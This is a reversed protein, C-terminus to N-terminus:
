WMVLLSLTTASIRNRVGFQQTNLEEYCKWKKNRQRKDKSLFCCTFPVAFPLHLSQLQKSAQPPASIIRYNCIGHNWDHHTGFLTRGTPKTLDSIRGDTKYKLLGFSYPFPLLLFYSIQALLAASAVNLLCSHLWDDSLTRSVPFVNTMQFNFFVEYVTTDYM